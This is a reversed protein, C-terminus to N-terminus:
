RCRLGARDRDSDFIRATAATAQRRKSAQEILAQAHYSARRDLRRSKEHRYNLGWAALFSISSRPSAVTDIALRRATRGDKCPAACAAPRAVV